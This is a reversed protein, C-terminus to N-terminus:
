RSWTIPASCARAASWPTRAWPAAQEAEGLLALAVTLGAASHLTAPHDPGFVRRCRELKKALARAQDAEGVNVLAHTLVAAVQLVDPHDPGPLPALPGAATPRRAAAQSDGRTNLYDVMSLMLRRSDARDDVWLVLPWCMPLSSPM